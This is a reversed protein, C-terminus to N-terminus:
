SRLATEIMARWSANERSCQNLTQAEITMGSVGSRQVKRAAFNGDQLMDLTPERMAKIAIRALHRWHDKCGEPMGHECAMDSEDPLLVWALGANSAMCEAVREIMESM